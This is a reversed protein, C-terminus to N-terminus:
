DKYHLHLHQEEKESLTRTGIKYVKFKSDVEKYIDRYFNKLIFKVFNSPTVPGLIPIRSDNELGIHMHSYPHLCDIYNVKKGDFDFRLYTLGEIDPSPLFTLSHEIISSNYKNLEYYLQVASNDEFLMIYERNQLIQRHTERYSLGRYISYNYKNGTWTVCTNKITAYNQDLCFSIGILEYIIHNIDRSLHIALNAM